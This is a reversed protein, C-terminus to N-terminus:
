HVDIGDFYIETIATDNYKDGRYVEVIEFRLVLDKGNPNRGLTGVKFEQDTKTDTLKLLAHATGNVHLKLLKVRNNNKWALDSKMYGNSIIIYTIRPSLNKFSYEIYEGIGADEKAEVWATKYSFDNASKATYSNKGQSKLESSAFVKYSGGGCYWSCSINVAEWAEKMDEGRKNGYKKVLFDFEIQEQKTLEEKNYLEIQRQIDKQSKEGLKPSLTRVPEAMRLSKQGFSNISFSISVLILLLINKM